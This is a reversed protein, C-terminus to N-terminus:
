VVAGVRSGVLPERNLHTRDNLIELSVRGQHQNSRLAIGSNPEPVTEASNESLVLLVRSEITLNDLVRVDFYLIDISVARSRM